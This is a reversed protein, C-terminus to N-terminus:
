AFSLMTHMKMHCKRCLSQLDTVKVDYLNRYQLHHPEVRQNSGCLECIPNQALKLARLNKWHDSYLYENRYFDRDGYYYQFKGSRKGCSPIKKRRSKRRKPIFYTRARSLTNSASFMLVM